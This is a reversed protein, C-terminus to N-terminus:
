YYEFNTELFNHRIRSINNRVQTSGLVLATM